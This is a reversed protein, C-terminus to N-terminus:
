SSPNPNPSPSNTRNLDYKIWRKISKHEGIHQHNSKYARNIKKSKRKETNTGNLLNKCILLLISLHRNKKERKEKKGKTENVWELM